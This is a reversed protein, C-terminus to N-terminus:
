KEKEELTKKVQEWSVFTIGKDDIFYDVYPKGFYLEDYPINHKKLWDTVLGAQAKIVQGLNGNYTRMNRATAIIIYYGKNKLETLTEVAGPIPLVDEYKEGDKKTYCITGDLDVCIRM